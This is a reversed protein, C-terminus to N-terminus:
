ANEKEEEILPRNSEVIEEEVLIIEFFWGRQIRDKIRKVSKVVRSAVRLSKFFHAEAFKRTVTWRSEGDKDELRQVYHPDEYTWFDDRPAWMRIFLYKLSDRM